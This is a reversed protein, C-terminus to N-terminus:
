RNSSPCCLNFYTLDPVMMIPLVIDHTYVTWYLYITHIFGIRAKQQYQVALKMIYGWDVGRCCKVELSDAPVEDMDDIEAEVRIRGKDWKRRLRRVRCRWDIGFTTVGIVESEPRFSLRFPNCHRDLLSEIDFIVWFNNHCIGIDWSQCVPNQHRLLQQRSRLSNSKIFKDRNWM